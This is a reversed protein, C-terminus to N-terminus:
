VKQRELRDVIEEFLKLTEQMKEKDLGSTTYRAMDCATFCEKLKDLIELDVGRHRLEEVVNGTIGATPLHFKDGLYEQLAKFV